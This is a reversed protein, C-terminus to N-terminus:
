LDLRLRGPGDPVFGLGAIMRRAAEDLPEDVVARRLGDARLDAMVQHALRRGHGHGRHESPVGGGVVTAVEGALVVEIVAKAPDDPAALLDELTYVVLGAPGTGRPPRRRMLHSEAPHASATM